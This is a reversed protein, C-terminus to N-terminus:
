NCRLVHWLIWTILLILQYFKFTSSYQIESLYDYSKTPGFAKWHSPMILIQVLPWFKAWFDFNKSNGWFSCSCLGRRWSGLAVWKPEFSRQILSIDRETRITLCVFFIDQSYLGYLGYLHQRPMDTRQPPLQHHPLRQNASTSLDQQSVHCRKTLHNPAVHGLCPSGRPVM